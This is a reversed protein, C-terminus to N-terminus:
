VNLFAFCLPWCLKFILVFFFGIEPWLDYAEFVTRHCAKNQWYTICTYVNIPVLSILKSM